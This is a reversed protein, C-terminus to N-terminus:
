GGGSDVAELLARAERVKTDIRHCHTKVTGLDLGLEEAIAAQSRGDDRLVQVQAQRPSLGARVLSGVADSPLVLAESGPVSEDMVDAAFAAHVAMAADCLEGSLDLRDALQNWVDTGVYLVTALGDDTTHWPQDYEDDYHQTIADGGDALDDHITALADALRDPDVGHDRAADDVLSQPFPTTTPM